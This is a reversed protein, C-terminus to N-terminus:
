RSRIATRLARLMESPPEVDVDQRPTTDIDLRISGPLITAEAGPAARWRLALKTAGISEPILTAVTDQIRIFHQATGFLMMSRAPKPEIIEALLASGEPLEPLKRMRVRVQPRPTLTVSQDQVAADVRATLYQPHTVTVSAGETGVYTHIPGLLSGGSGNRQYWGGKLPEGDPTKFELTIPKCCSRWAFRPLEHESDTMPVVVDSRSYVVEGTRLSVQLEYTGPPIGHFKCAENTPTSVHSNSGRILRVSGDFPIEFPDIPLRVTTVAQVTFEANASGRPVSGRPTLQRNSRASEVRVHDDQPSGYAIGRVEFAGSSDSRGHAMWRETNRQGLWRVSTRVRVEFDPVADGSSTRIHGAVMVPEAILRVDGLESRGHTPYQSLDIANAGLSAGDQDRRILTLRKSCTRMARQDLPVVLRGTSDTRQLTGTPSPWFGSICGISEDCVPKGDMGLLRMSLEPAAEAALETVIMERPRTPGDFTRVVHVRNENGFRLTVTLRLGLGVHPFTVSEEDAAVTGEFEPANPGRRLTAGALKQPTGDADAIWVRVSGIPVTRLEIPDDPRTNAQLVVPDAVPFGLRAGLAVPIPLPPATLSVCGRADSKGIVVPTGRLTSAGAVCVALPIGAAPRGADDSVRIHLPAPKPPEQATTLPALLVLACVATRM